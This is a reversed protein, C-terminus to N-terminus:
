CAYKVPWQRWRGLCLRRRKLMLDGVGHLRHSNRRGMRYLNVALEVAETGPRLSLAPVPVLRAPVHNVRVADGGSFETAPPGPDFAVPSRFDTAAKRRDLFHRVGFPERLGLRRPVCLKGLAALHRRTRDLGNPCVGHGRACIVRIQRAFADLRM